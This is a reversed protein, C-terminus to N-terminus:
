GKGNEEEQIGVKEVQTFAEKIINEIFNQITISNQACHMKIKKHMCEDVRIIIAKLSDKHITPSFM